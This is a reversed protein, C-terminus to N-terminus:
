NDFMVQKATFAASSAMMAGSWSAFYGNGTETFPGVITVFFAMVVWGIALLTTAVFNFTTSLVKCRDLALTLFSFALSTSAVTLALICAARELEVSTRLPYISAVIVVLSSVVMGMVSGIGKITSEADDFDMGMATASGYVIAWAAFYGNGTATFPAHFTLFCAGVFSYCFLLFNVHRGFQMPLPISALSLLIAVAPISMAYGYYGGGEHWGYEAGTSLLLVISAILVIMLPATSDGNTDGGSPQTTPLLPDVSVM